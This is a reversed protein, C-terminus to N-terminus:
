KDRARWWGYEHIVAIPTPYDRNYVEMYADYEIMSDVEQFVAFPRTEDSHWFEIPEGDFLLTEKHMDAGKQFNHLMLGRGSHQGVSDM